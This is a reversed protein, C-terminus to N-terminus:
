NINHTKVILHMFNDPDLEYVIEYELASNQEAIPSGLNLELARSKFENIYKEVEELNLTLLSKSIAGGHERSQSFDIIEYIIM